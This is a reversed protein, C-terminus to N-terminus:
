QSSVLEQPIVEQLELKKYRGPMIGALGDFSRKIWPDYIGMQQTRKVNSEFAVIAKEEFPYAQEELLFSYQELQQPTLGQPPESELLATGFGQFAVGIQYAAETVIESVEYNAARIYHNLMEALLEKKLALTEELPEVLKVTDYEKRVYDASFLYVKSLYYTVTTAEEPVSAYQEIFDRILGQAAADLKQTQKFEILKFRIEAIKDFEGDNTGLYARYAREARGWNKMQEYLWGASLLSEAGMKRDETLSPVREYELAAEKLKGQKEHIRAMELSAHVAHSAGPYKRVLLGFARLASSLDEQDLALVGADYLAVPAVESSAVEKQVQYFAKEADKINGTKKLEEAQKYLASSWLRKVEERENSSIENLNVERYIKVAKDYSKEEFHRNAILLQAQYAMEDLIGTGLTKIGDALIQAQDYRDNNLLEEETQLLLSPVKVSLESKPYQQVLLGFARLAGKHDKRDLALLGADYLAIPAVKSAPVERQVQYFAAEAETIKGTNKFEEAQKYLASAWLKRVERRKKKSIEGVNLRRYFEVARPYDGQEFYSNAILFLASYVKPYRTPVYAVAIEEALGRADEFRGANFYIQAGKLRVDLARDDSPFNSAFKVCAQAVLLASPDMQSAKEVNARKNWIRELSLIAAYGAEASDQHLPYEYATKKYEVAAEKYMKLEFLGEALLFNVRRSEAEKPYLKLFEGYWKLAKQYDKKRKTQQAESHYFIALQYYTSQLKPRIKVRDEFATAEHWASGEGFSRIFRIRAENGPDILQLKQYADIIGLAMSPAEAHMPNDKLSMKYMRIADYTRQRALYHSGLKQYLIYEFKRHGISKFYTQTKEPPGWNSFAIVMGRLVEQVFDWESRSMTNPDYKYPRTELIKRKRDLLSQFIKVAGRIDDLAMQSWGAKYLAREEEARRRAEAVAIEARERSGKRAREFVSFDLGRAATKYATAAEDYSGEEFYIEALRFQIEPIYESDPYNLVLRKLVKNRKKFQNTAEYIRGLQYLVKENEPRDLYLELVREYLRRPVSYPTVPPTPARRLRGQDYLRKRQTYSQLEREYKRNERIMHVDAIRHLSAAMVKANGGFYAEMFAEHDALAVDPEGLTPTEFTSESVKSEVKKLHDPDPTYMVTEPVCGM